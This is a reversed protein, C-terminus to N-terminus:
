PLAFLQNCITGLKKGLADPSLKPVDGLPILRVNCDRGGNKYARVTTGDKTRVARDGVGPVPVAGSFNRTIVGNWDALSVHDFLDISILNSGDPYDAGWVCGEGGARGDSKGEAHVLIAGLFDRTLLKQCASAGNASWASAQGFTFLVSCIGILTTTRM